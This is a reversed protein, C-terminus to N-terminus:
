GHNEEAWWITACRAKEEDDNDDDDKIQEAFQIDCRRVIMVLMVLTEYYYHM